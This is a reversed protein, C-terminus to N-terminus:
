SSIRDSPTLSITDSPSGTIMLYSSLNGFVPMDGKERAALPWTLAGRLLAIFDRRKKM